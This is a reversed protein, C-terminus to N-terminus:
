VNQAPPPKGSALVSKMTKMMSPLLDMHKDVCRVACKEFNITCKDVLKNTMPWPYCQINNLRIHNHQLKLCIYNITEDCCKAACRHMDGQMKRLYTRDLENILKTMEQEIRYKQAEVM